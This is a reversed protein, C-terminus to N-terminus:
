KICLKKIYEYVWSTASKAEALMQKKEKVSLKYNLKDLIGADINEKGLAKLAQIILTTKYSMGSIDRNTTRKFKITTRDFSYEKYTGNSVYIWITPVQATLGLMYLATDGCPVITRGFNRAIAHAVKDASPNMYENSAKSYEPYNYVGRMVRCILGETALRSLCVGVKAVDTIDAFDTAVFISGKHSSQIRAKIQNLYNPRGM